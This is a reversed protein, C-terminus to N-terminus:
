FVTFGVDRGDHQFGGQRCFELLGDDFGQALFGPARGAHLVNFGQRLPDLHHIDVHLRNLLEDNAM